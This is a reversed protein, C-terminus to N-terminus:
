SMKIRAASKAKKLPPGSLDPTASRFSTSPNLNARAPSVGANRQPHGNRLQREETHPTRVPRREDYNSSSTARDRSLERKRKNTSSRRLHSDKVHYGSFTQSERLKQRRSEVFADDEGSPDKEGPQKYDSNNGSSMQKSKSKNAKTNGLPLTVRHDTIPQRNRSVKAPDGARSGSSIEGNGYQLCEESSEISSLSSVSSTSSSRKKSTRENENSMEKRVPEKRLGDTVSTQEELSKLRRSSRNPSSEKPQNKIEKIPESTTITTPRSSEAQKPPKEIVGNGITTQKARGKSEAKHAKLAKKAKKVYSQFEKTQEQTTKQALIADLLEGLRDNHLSEVFIQKIALGIGPNGVERSKHVAAEVVAELRQRGTSTRSTPLPRSPSSKNDPKAPAKLTSNNSTPQAIPVDTKAPVYDVDDSEAKVTINQQVAPTAALPEAQLSDVGRTTDFADRDPEEAESAAASQAQSLRREMDNRIKAKVKATPRSGLPVMTSLVGLREFGHDEFSPRNLVPPEHWRKFLVSANRKINVDAREVLEKGDGSSSAGSINGDEFLSRPRGKQSQIQPIPSRSVPSSLRSSKRTPRTSTPM